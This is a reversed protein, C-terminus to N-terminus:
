YPPDSICFMFLFSKNVECLIHFWCNGWVVRCFVDDGELGLFSGFIIWVVTKQHVSSHLSAFPTWDLWEAKWNGSKILGRVKNVSKLKSIISQKLRTISVRCLKKFLVSKCVSSKKGNVCNTFFIWGGNTGGVTRIDATRQVNSKDDGKTIM